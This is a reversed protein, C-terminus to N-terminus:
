SEFFKNIIYYDLKNLINDRININNFLEIINNINKDNIYKIIKNYESNDIMSYDIFKIYDYLKKDSLKIKKNENLKVYINLM